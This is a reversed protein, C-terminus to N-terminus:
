VCVEEAVLTAVEAPEIGLWRGLVDETDAGLLPSAGAIVNPTRSPRVPNGIHREPGIEAHTVTVIAGRAALHPDARTDDPSQVIHASIAAAQLSEAVDEARRSATWESVRADIEDRAALRLELTSLRPDDVWGAVACFRRWEEDSAVALAVWRDEGECRYVGHPVAWDVANGRQRAPRGTCPGELYLEGLLFAAAETQAMEIRQGVGSRRRHELAALVGLAALKSAIHDPHNLSSGAPYPAQPHNWVWNVGSFSSNLPGFAQARGLPGGEGFGQSQLYIVRPNVRRVSEYDLGWKECVGGRNNEVIVDARRCLEFAIERGRASRLDLCVSKQGRCETNFTWARNVAGPELTVARLFDLNARSEIKIVEAGLEALAWCAEPGVAGVGLDVVRVGALLPGDAAAAPGPVVAARPAFGTRDDEGPAPAPRRLTAPTESFNLALPAFPADGLKPFGTSRFFGRERTQEERVFDEPPNVPALPTGLRCAEALLDARKRERLADCAIIRLVDANLMRVAPQEWEPGMLVEPRGLLELFARWHRVTGPLVRVHGDAAELVLYTGDANRPPAKPLIPYRRAYDELPVSWPNMGHLAAEQVSVEVTQGAGHRARDLLAAVAGLAAYISACDHAAYGPLACPPLEPFGCPHLAGSAAFAVLPEARWSARPGSLGFDGVAVHVLEPHRARVSAPELGLAARREPSFNEILLDAGDCLQTLRERGSSSGLDIVAGRKNANRFLFPLSGDPAALNEAFPPVLRGPDGGPPEVKIVDAGLDALMRGALAGRIDTLDVVRVHSLPPTTM